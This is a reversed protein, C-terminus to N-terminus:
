KLYSVSSSNRIEVYALRVVTKCIPWDRVWIGYGNNRVHRYFGGILERLRASHNMFTRVEEGKCSVRASVFNEIHWRCNCVACLLFVSVSRDVDFLKKKRVRGITDFRFDYEARGFVSWIEGHAAPLAVAGGNDLSRQDANPNRHARGISRNGSVSAHAHTELYCYACMRHHTCPMALRLCASRPFRLASAPRSCLTHTHTDRNTVTQSLTDAGDTVDFPELKCTTHRRHIWIQMIMGYNTACEQAHTSYNVFDSRRM